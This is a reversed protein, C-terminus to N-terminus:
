PPMRLASCRKAAAAAAGTKRLMAITTASAKTVNKGVAPWAAAQPTSVANIDANQFNLDYGEAGHAVAEEGPAAPPPNLIQAINDDNSGGGSYIEGKPTAPDRLKNDLAAPNRATLDAGAVAESADDANTLNFAKDLASCDALAVALLGFIAARAAVQFRVFQVGRLM